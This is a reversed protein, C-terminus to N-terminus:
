PVVVVPLLEIGIFLASFGIQNSIVFLGPAIKVVVLM